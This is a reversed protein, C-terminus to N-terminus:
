GAIQIGGQFRWSSSGPRNHRPLSDRWSCEEHSRSREPEMVDCETLALQRRAGLFRTSFAVFELGALEPVTSKAIAARDLLDGVKGLKSQESSRRDMRDFRTSPAMEGPDVRPASVLESVHQEDLLAM